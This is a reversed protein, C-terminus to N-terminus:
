IEGNQIWQAMDLAHYTFILDAGARHMSTLTESVIKKEDIWQKESAAKVMAYEGSVNYAAVPVPSIDKLDSIIDLYSLAPKVMVIDAGEDLDLEVEYQAETRNAPNMQYTKKDGSRPTSDLAERFPGYFSSAYKASYSMIGTSTFGNEDLADRIASVRGDMMDSPAVYDAGAEAQVCSMEALIELTEDNLIEDGKLLGDHGDSSYPDMAVDTFLVLDSNLDKAQRIFTPLLGQPNKSESAYTDKKQDPIVPFLAFSHLGLNQAKKITKLALDSSLRFQGPMSTIPTQTQSGEQIFLPYVLQRSSIQYENLMRRIAPTRRNRRPRHILNM